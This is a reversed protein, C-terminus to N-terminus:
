MHSTVPVPLPHDPLEVQRAVEELVLNYFLSHRLDEPRPERNSDEFLRRVESRSHVLWALLRLPALSSPDLGTREIYRETCALYLEGMFTRPDFAKRFSHILKGNQMAGDLFFGLYALFYFLDLAPLGDPKASEWDLVALEGRDTVLLNWPSCDRHEFAGPLDPLRNLIERINLIASVDLVSSFANEFDHLVPEVLEDWWESRPNPPQDKEVLDALWTAVDLALQLANDPQMVSYLPQGFLPTEALAHMDVLEHTFLVQPARTAAEPYRSHLATLVHAEHVLSLSAEPTRPLKIVLSPLKEGSLFQYLIVKNISRHGGTWMLFNSGQPSIASWQDKMPHEASISVSAFDLQPSEKRAVVSLPVLLDTHFLVKWLLFLMKRGLLKLPQTSGHRSTLFYDLAQPADLPLWFLPSAVALFPWPWYSSISTFGAAELRARIRSVRDLGPLYWESYFYGGPKLGQWAKRLVSASPNVAVALDCEAPKLNDPPVVVTSIAQVADSLLGHNFCVSTHPSLDSVLYRWDVRRLLRNNMRETHESM